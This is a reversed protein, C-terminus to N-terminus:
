GIKTKRRRVRGTLPVTPADAWLHDLGYFGRAEEQLVHIVVSGFDVLVWWGLAYGEMKGHKGKQKMESVIADGLAQTQRRSNSTVLVFYDAIKVLDGVDRIVVDKGKKDEAIRACHRALALPDLRAAIEIRRFLKESSRYKADSVWIPLGRLPRNEVAEKFTIIAM